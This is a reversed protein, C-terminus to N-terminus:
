MNQWLAPATWEPTMNTLAASWGANGLLFLGTAACLGLKTPVKAAPLLHSTQIRDTFCLGRGGLVVAQGAIVPSAGASGQSYPQAAFRKKKLHFDNKDCLVNLNNKKEELKELVRRVKKGVWSQGRKFIFYFLFWAFLFM